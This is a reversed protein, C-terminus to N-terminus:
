LWGSERYWQATRAFGDETSVLPEYGLLLKAKDISCAWNPTLLDQAKNRDFFAVRGFGKAVAEGIRAATRVIWQPVYISIGWTGVAQQVMDTLEIRSFPVEDAIYFIQSVAEPLVAAKIIGDVLNDVFVVSARGKSGIRAKIHFAALKFLDYVAVDEPGYVAPPRVITWLFDFQQVWKEGLRKSAGYPSIPRAAMEEDILRDPPGPGAAAMSSVYVFRKLRPAKAMAAACVNKTGDGNVAIFTEDNLAKILGGVHFVYDVDAMGSAISIPDTLDGEVRDFDIQELRSLNSTRRVLIRLRAGRAALARALHSGVFGTAGTLFITADAIASSM